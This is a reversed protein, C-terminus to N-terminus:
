IKNTLIPKKRLKNSIMIFRLVTKIVENIQCSM